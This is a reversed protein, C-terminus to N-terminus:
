ASSSLRNVHIEGGKVVLLPKRLLALDALPDGDVLILDALKGPELTGIQDEMGLVISGNRTGCVIAQMPTLGEQAMMELEWALMDHYNFPTGADTGAALRVGHEVSKHFSDMHHGSEEVAKRVAWEPIGAETGHEVIRDVAILTPVHFARTELFLEIAEDDIYFGHEVSDIGARLANKIGKNGIAHTATRKGAEHAAEIGARLEDVTLQAQGPHVGKTLVGGTAMIKLFQAGEKIEARAAQRVADPGDAERGMFHGHGGTMCVVRGCAVIRPGPVIGEDIAQVLEVVVGAKAGCDRVTTIGAALTIQANRAARLAAIPVSDGVIQANIDALGDSTLHVHANILGPLVTRGAAHIVRAAESPLVTDKASGVSEIKDGKVVVVADGVPEGGLGDILTTGKIVLRDTM